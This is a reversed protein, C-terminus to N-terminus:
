SLRVKFFLTRAAYIKRVKIEYKPQGTSAPKGVDASQKTLAPLSQKGSHDLPTSELEVLELQTPEFGVATMQGVVKSNSAYPLPAATSARNLKGL